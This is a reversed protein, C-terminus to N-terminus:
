RNRPFAERASHGPARSEDWSAIDGIQAQSEVAAACKLPDPKSAETEGFLKV